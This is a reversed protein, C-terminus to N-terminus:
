PRLRESFTGSIPPAPQSPYTAGEDSCGWGNTELDAPIHPARPNSPYAHIPESEGIGGTAYRARM